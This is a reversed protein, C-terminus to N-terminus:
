NINIYYKFNSTYYKINNYKKKKESIFVCM